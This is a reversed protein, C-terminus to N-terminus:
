TQKDMDAKVVSIWKARGWRYICIYICTRTCTCADMVVAVLTVGVTGVPTGETDTARTQWARGPMNGVLSVKGRRPAGISSCLMDSDNMVIGKGIFLDVDRRRSGLLRLEDPLFFVDVPLCVM